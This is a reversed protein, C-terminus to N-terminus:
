GANKWLSDTLEGLVQELRGEFVKDIATYGGKDKFVGAEFSQRDLVENAVLQKGIRTLWERQPHTWARSSLVQKVARDVRESYPRLPDGVARQRIFGIISAAIDENTTERWALRLSADTFGAADLELKLAKLAERTLERPRQAVVALAPLRNLNERVFREFADLYDQPRQRGPGYGQTLGLLADEHASVYVKPGLGSVRDLLETVRPHAAFWAAAEATTCGKLRTVARAAPEGAAAEFPEANKGVLANKKRQLKALLQELVVQRAEGDPLAQLEQVLQSFPILPDKVVPKMSTVPELLKYLDVADFIRFLEKVTGDRYTCLRTARGLMQEYLIRSKVRRLFVLNAIPPVDIGTTLLDVTVVVSPLRENRFHRICDLRRDVSGTIKMVTDDHLEGYRVDFAKKLLDVVMDAHNDTACFVLTKGELTPDIEKALAGAVERNFSETLVRTNFADVDFRLEDPLTILDLQQTSTDLTSVKEGAGWKIGQTSLETDIRTPPGHDVLWGDIVAERYSYQYVPAGFIQTTHLAPTATLGIKVADFYDLVRRYASLYEDESRFSLEADSMDKDLTYGRHCEDVVICDYDSVAPREADSPTELVRRVMGQVTSVHLKTEPEPKLDGLEKIDYIDEFTKMGDVRSSKFADTAQVGLATRDVLFLVRRFRGAKVLRYILGILTRTKGTGTAMALLCHRRGDELASEVARIANVQYDRLGPLDVPETRLAKQAADVDQRLLDRLGEPTHWGVLARPHNTPRRVDQFWIGSKTKLQELYARGNTAFLFPVRYENWPGGPLTEDGRVTFGRSYRKAQTIAGPVDKSQRKAEVVGIAELGVFLVYDARGDTTPWEAIARHKGPQPRAGREYTLAQSDVEWGAARLQADILHRTDAEDLELKDGARLAQTALLQLQAAPQAEARARLAALEGALKREADEALEQWVARESADLAAREEAALRAREAEKAAAQTAEHSLHADELAQRLRELEAKLAASEKTPDPPPIFPGPEFDKRGFARHFWIAINRAMKLQHLAESHTGQAEHTARNGTERLGHFLRQLDPTLIGRPPTALQEILQFQPTRDKVTVGMSAAAHQALVEGWQRLKMLCTVPDDAFLREAQAGLAVLLPDHALLFQFNPSTPSAM